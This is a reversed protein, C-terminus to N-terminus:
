NLWGRRQATAGAAFPSDTGLRDMIVEVERGVTKESKGVRGAIMAHTLGQGLLSLVQRQRPTLPCDSPVAASGYPVACEWLMEWFERMAPVIPHAHILVCGGTGAPTLPLLVASTDAIQMKMPVEPMVRAQEGQGICAEIIHAGVPSETFARDYISRVTVTDRASAPGEIINDESYPMDSNFSELTMWDQRATNILNQSLQLIEQRDTVVELMHAPGSAEQSLSAQIGLLERYGAELLKSDRVLRALLDGLVGQLALDPRAARFTAPGQPTHPFVHAMGLGTLADVVDQGGLFEAAAGKPLRDSDLLREYAVALDEPIFLAFIRAVTQTKRLTM